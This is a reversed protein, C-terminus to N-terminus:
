YPLRKPLPKELSIHKCLWLTVKAMHHTHVTGEGVGMSITYPTCQMDFTCQLHGHCTNHRAFLLKRAGCSEVTVEM